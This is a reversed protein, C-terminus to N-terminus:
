HDLVKMENLVHEHTHSSDLCVMVKKGEGIINKVQNVIEEDTSSGELLVLRKNMPHNEIEKRNHNRIDIDIGIVKGQNGLLELISAYYIISGGHAIGTEIIYDPKTEWILEQMIFMDNPFQIIPRGMWNFSYGYKYENSKLIWDLSKEQFDSDKGMDLIATKRENKFEQIPDVIQQTM